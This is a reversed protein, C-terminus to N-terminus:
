PAVLALEAWSGKHDDKKVKEITGAEILELQFRKKVPLGGRGLILDIQREHGDPGHTGENPNNYLVLGADHLPQMNSHDWRCNCDGQVLVPTSVDQVKEAIANMLTEHLEDRSVEAGAEDQLPVGISPPAHVNFVHLHGRRGKRKLHLWQVYRETLTAPGAGEKGVFSAEYALEGDMDILDWVHSDFSFPQPAFVSMTKISKPWVLKLDDVLHMGEQHTWLSAAHTMRRRSRGPPTHSQPYMMPGLLHDHLKQKPIGAPINQTVTIFTM